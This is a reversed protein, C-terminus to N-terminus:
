GLRRRTEERLESRDIGLRRLAGAVTGHEPETVALLVHGSNLAAREEKALEVARQFATQLSGQVRYPGRPPDTPPLAEGIAREDAIVGIRNLAEQHLGRIAGRLGDNDAGLTAMAARAIADDLGLAALLLHEAGPQDTGDDRAIREAAPLLTHLTTLDARARRLTSFM